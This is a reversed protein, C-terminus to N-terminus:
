IPLFEKLDRLEENLDQEDLCYERLSARISAALKKRARFLLNGVDGETVGLLQSLEPYAQNKFYFGEVARDYPTGLRESERRLSELADQVIRAAWERNFSSQVDSDVVIGGAAAAFIEDHDLSLEKGEGKKRRAYEGRLWMKVRNETVAFLLNRFRGKERDARKLFDEGSIQLFVTQTLDDLDAASVGRIRRSIHGSILGRYAHHLRDWAGTANEQAQRIQSWITSPIEM